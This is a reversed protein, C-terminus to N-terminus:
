GITYSSISSDRMKFAAISLFPPDPGHPRPPSPQLFINVDRENPVAGDLNPLVKASGKSLSQKTNILFASDRSYNM